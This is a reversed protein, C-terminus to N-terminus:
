ISRNLSHATLLALFVFVRRLAVDVAVRELFVIRLSRLEKVIIVNSSEEDASSVLLAVQLLRDTELDRDEEVVETFVVRVQDDVLEHLSRLALGLHDTLIHLLIELHNHLFM